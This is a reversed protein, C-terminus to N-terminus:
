EVLRVVNVAQQRGGSAVLYVDTAVHWNIEFHESTASYNMADNYYNEGSRKWGAPALICGSPGQCAAYFPAAFTKLDSEQQGLRAQWQSSFAFLALALIAFFGAKVKTTRLFSLRSM